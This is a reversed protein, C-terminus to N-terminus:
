QMKELKLIDIKGIITKPLEDMIQITEPVAYYSINEKILTKIKEISLSEFKQNWVIFLKIKAGKLEDRIGIVAVESIEKFSMLFNEIESPLVPMGNVKIIRKLRQKFHVYGEEDIYGLDGTKVWLENNIEIMTKNTAIKDNLYGNMLTPGSIVIEGDINSKEFENTKMNLINMRIGPLPKGVTGEKNDKLTNVCSVTVTETLGYGELLRANSYYYEMVDNFRNKLDNSVYDGGVYTQLINKVSPSHFEHNKLLAEFLSPVGIIFNIRNKVILSVAEEASFKPMLTDIGGFMLMAHLGMCLGFGHFMPLVALMHKNEFDSIGMIFPAKSALFNISYNSLEITKPEGSTGGSHLLFATDKPRIKIENIKKNIFLDKLYLVNSHKKIYKLKSYNLLKYGIQKFKNFENVPTALIIKKDEKLKEFHHYFTDLIILHKSNTEEMYKSMQVVPTLPHVMHCIVGIKNLAYFSYIAEFVNPLAITVVEKKKIGIELFGAALDDVRELLNKYDMYRNMFLLAYRNPYKLATNRLSEYLTQNFKM